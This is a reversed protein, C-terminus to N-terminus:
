SVAAREREWSLVGRVTVEGEEARPMRGPPTSLELKDGEFTYTRVQDTGSRHAYRQHDTVRPSVPGLPERCRAGVADGSRGGPGSVGIGLQAGDRGVLHRHPRRSQM